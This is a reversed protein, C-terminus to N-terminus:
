KFPTPQQHRRQLMPAVFWLLVLMLLTLLSTLVSIVTNRVALQMVVGVDMTIAIALPLLGASILLSSSRVLNETVCDPSVLRHWAAPAMVLGIAVVVLFLAALHCYQAAPAIDDFRQNFVAITQFGFLAQIGPLIMRAEELINRMQDKLSNRDQTTEM